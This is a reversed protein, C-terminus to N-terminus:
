LLAGAILWIGWGAMLVGIARSMTQGGPLVKEALVYAAIIAIWLMNMVGAVFLLAMLMWCCGVCFAGHRIGMILAGRDGDRWETMFYGLPSRCHSLCSQKLPTFQFVGAAILILGGLLPSTTEMMPSLLTAAHLGGQALAAAVSFAVWVLIYGLYFVATGRVPADVNRGQRSIKTYTLVMPAASPTMMAIQMVTWMVFVLVFDSVGWPSLAPQAMVQGLAAVATDMSMGTEGVATDMGPAAEAAPMEMAMPADSLDMMRTMDWALWGMYSWSLFLIVALGALVVSRDRRLVTETFTGTTM